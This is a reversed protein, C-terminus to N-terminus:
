WRKSGLGLLVSLAMVLVEISIPQLSTTPFVVFVIVKIVFTNNLM